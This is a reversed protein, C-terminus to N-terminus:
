TSSGVIVCCEMISLCSKWFPRTTNMFDPLMKEYVLQNNVNFTANSVHLSNRVDQKNLFDLFTYVAPGDENFNLFSVGSHKKIYEITENFKNAADVMKGADLLKVTDTELNRLVTGQEDDLLGLVLCLDTYHMMSRPDILGNGIMVGRLNVQYAPKNRNRHLVAALTPVYKGAYSEGAIFLPRQRLEPFIALFQRLFELLQDGVEDESSTYGKDERTYSFGAGVPNDIYLVSYDNTWSSNRLHMEDGKIVFPGNIEFVAVLSSVGPGGHLWIIWPTDSANKKPFYWFFLKSDYEEKVPIFGAYSDVGLWTSSEVKFTERHNSHNSTSHPKSQYAEKTKLGCLYLLILWCKM